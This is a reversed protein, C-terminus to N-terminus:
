GGPRLVVKIARRDGRAYATALAERYDELAFEHTVLRRCTDARAALLELARDVSHETAGGHAGPDRAHFVGGVLAVEKMWITTLDIEVIGPIGLLLVTGRGDVIRLAQTVAQPTGVAEVVYPFGGALFRDVGQGVVRTGALRALEHLHGGAADPRIVRHAGLAVAADAQHEHKAIAVVKSEPFLARAGAIAALGIIGAGSVLIPEGRRPSQRLLGHIAISFPEHLTAIEDPLGAPLPHLMSAHALVEDAWGGGLGQTYGILFGPTLVQSALNECISPMDAACKACPPEIGRVTCGITPDVAVRTGVAIGCGPGTEVVVGAIEHGLNVPLPTLSGLLQLSGTSGHFMHLDSGCIGCGRVAVRAWAEGPLAPSPVETLRAALKDGELELVISRM